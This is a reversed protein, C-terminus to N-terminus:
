LVLTEVATVSGEAYLHAPSNTTGVHAVTGDRNLATYLVDVSGMYRQMREVVEICAAEPDMGGRMNSVVSATGVVRIVQEGTGTAVAAGVENDVYGGAGILPSDGVRGPLKLAAGSTSLGAHLDGDADMVILGITDHGRSTQGDLERAFDRLMAERQGLSMEDRGMSLFARMLRASEGPSLQSAISESAPRSLGWFMLGAARTSDGEASMRRKILEAAHRPDRAVATDLSDQLSAFNRRKEEWARWRRWQERRQETLLETKEFGMRLAFELAGQGVLMVHETEEMVKRAVSIPNGIHQLAAVSGCAQTPGHIIAADLEVIGDWNPMGGIGVSFISPDSEVARIGRELADLGSAGDALAAGAETAAVAFNNGLALPAAATSRSSVAGSSVDAGPQARLGRPALLGGASLAGAAKLFNRRHMPLMARDEQLLNHRM